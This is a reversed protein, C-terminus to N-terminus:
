GWPFVVTVLPHASGHEERHLEARVLSVDGSLVPHVWCSDDTLFVLM